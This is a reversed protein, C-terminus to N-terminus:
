DIIKKGDSGAATRQAYAFLIDKIELKVQPLDKAVDPAFAAVLSNLALGAGAPPKYAAM